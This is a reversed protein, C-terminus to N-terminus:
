RHLTLAIKWVWAVIALTPWAAVHFRMPVANLLRYAARGTVVVYLGGWFGAATLVCLIMGFPQAVFSRVPHGHVLWAFSTTMGCGACPIGFQQYFGCPQMGLQEHTGFGKPDPRLWAAVLLVTLCGVAVAFALLRNVWGAEPPRGLGVYIPPATAISM